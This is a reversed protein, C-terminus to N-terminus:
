SGHRRRAVVMASLLKQVEPLAAIEDMEAETPARLQFEVTYIGIHSCYLCVAVDGEVPGRVDTEDPHPTAADMEKHCNFCKIIPTRYDTASWKDTIARDAM